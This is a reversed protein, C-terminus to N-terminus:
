NHLIVSIQVAADTRKQVIASILRDTTQIGFACVILHILVCEVTDNRINHHRVDVAKLEGLRHAGEVIINRNQKHGGTIIKGGLLPPVADANVVVHCLGDVKVLEKKRM